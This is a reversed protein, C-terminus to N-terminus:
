EWEKGDGGPMLQIGLDSVTQPDVSDLLDQKFYGHMQMKENMLDLLLTSGEDHSPYRKGAYWYHHSEDELWYNNETEHIAIIASRTPIQFSSDSLWFGNYEM